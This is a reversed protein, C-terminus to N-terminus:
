RPLELYFTAGKGPESEAWARGGMRDLAKRVIALGVGTGPYDEARHLRQFIDFIRDQFKMDFGVGNDRVWLTVSSPGERAGIEIAPHPQDGLFKIANEILNRLAMALGDRDARVMITPLSADVAVGRAAIEAAREELLAHVLGACDVVGSELPRRELRSYALLDDILRGMQVTAKRVNQVFLQGEDGLAASYDDLLLRSYGDISRLPAKLDHSVSYTFMELEKNAAELQATREQVRLELQANLERIAEEARKIPTIDLVHGLSHLFNGNADRLITASFLGWRVSGNAHRYRKELQYSARQGAILEGFLARDRATDEPPSLAEIAEMDMGAVEEESRGLFNALAANVRTVRGDPGGLALGVAAEDFTARFLEESERLADGARRVETVDVFSSMMHSPQGEGDLFMHASVRAIFNSGDSRRAVLDGIWRGDAFLAKVIALADEPREWFSTIPRGIADEAKEFGWLDLFARNLYTSTGDLAAIGMADIASEMAQHTLRLEAEAERQQTVDRSYVALRTVSGGADVIPYLRIEFVRGNWQDEYTAPESTAVVDAIRARGGAAAEAPLVGFVSSGVLGGAGALAREAAENTALVTGSADILLAVDTYANLLANATEESQEVARSALTLETIDQVTGLSRLPTGDAAYHTRCREQVYKVRGDKMLLRHSIEYPQRSAVSSTYAQDVADRDDPHIADLFAEYSAGFRERDIEFIRYIEDSWHLAGGVLDLEWSGLQAVRQAERLRAESARLADETAKRDTVDVAFSLLQVVTGQDDYLPQLTSDTTVRRDGAVTATIDARVREGRAVKAYTERLREGVEPANAWRETEWPRRGIMQERALGWQDLTHQNVETLIGDTSYLAVYAFMGDIIARLRSEGQRLALEAAKRASVDRAVIIFHPQAEGPGPRKPAVSLEFCREEGGTVLCIQAGTSIGHAEAERIAEMCIDAAEAPLVDTVLRGLFEAPPVALLAHDRARYDMYRGERDLEFLLDPVAQLTAELSDRTGRLEQEARRRDTVDQGIALLGAPTGTADRVLQDSWEIERVEGTRTVIPNVNGRTPVGGTATKFLARIRDHDGEPLFTSVWDKGEVEALSYGSLAEFCPNVHQIRGELDLILIIVPAAQVVTAALDWDPTLAMAAAPTALLRALAGVGEAGNVAVFPLPPSRRALEDAFASGDGGLVGLDAVVLDCAANEALWARAADLSAATALTVRPAM